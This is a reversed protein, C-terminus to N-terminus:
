TNHKYVVLPIVKSDPTIDNFAELCKGGFLKADGRQVQMVMAIESKVQKYLDGSGSGSGSDPSEYVKGGFCGIQGFDTYACHYFVETGLFMPCCYNLGSPCCVLGCTISDCDGTRAPIVVISLSAVVLVIAKKLSFTM